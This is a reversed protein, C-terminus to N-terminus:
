RNARAAYNFQLFYKNWQRDTSEYEPNGLFWDVLMERARCLEKAGHKNKPDAITLNLLELARYFAARSHEDKQNKWKITRGIESGVNAMQESLTLKNWRGGVLGKHYKAM